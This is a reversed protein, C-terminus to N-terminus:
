HLRELPYLLQKFYISMGQVYDLAEGEAIDYRIGWPMKLHRAISELLPDERDEAVEYGAKWTEAKVEFEVLLVNSGQVTWFYCLVSPNDTDEGLIGHTLKLGNSPITATTTYTPRLLSQVVEPKLLKHLAPLNRRAWHQHPQLAVEHPIFVEEELGARVFHYQIRSLKQAAIQLTLPLVSGDNKTVCKGKQQFEPEGQRLRDRISM